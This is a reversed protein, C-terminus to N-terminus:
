PRIVGLQQMFVLNDMFDQEESIKGGKMKVITCGIVDVNKGTAPIGFFPGTHKGKFQWYKVLRDGDAFIEKVIFKRESFGTVFNEYYAKVNAKGKVAPSTHLIADDVYATDLIETRGENIAVEWVNSYFTVNRKSLEANKVLEPNNVKVSVCGTLAGFMLLLIMTKKM